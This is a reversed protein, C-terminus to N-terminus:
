CLLGLVHGSVCFHSHITSPTFPYGHTSTVFAQWVAQGKVLIPWAFTFYAEAWAQLSSPLPYSIDEKTKNHPLHLILRGSAARTFRNGKCEEYSCGKYQCSSPIHDPHAITIFDNPRHPTTHGFWISLTFAKQLAGAVDQVFITHPHTEFYSLQPFPYPGGSAQYKPLCRVLRAPLAQLCM